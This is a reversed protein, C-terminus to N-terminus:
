PAPNPNDAHIAEIGDVVARDLAIGAAALNDKLQSLTTAGVIVSTVFPQGLLYALAMQAPDLGHDRALCVYAKTAAVARPNSYRTYDAFETLRAGPPRAGDLYKGSLTGFALPSYALLGCDERMAVEALGVEFVRNLLSYPNQVSAMRPAMGPLGHRDAAALFAMTGWPTENSLGVARVRGDKIEDALADLVEAPPTGGGDKDDHEYGLRGFYNTKREPWHLQYLDIYDTRLRRLSGEVAARVQDRRFARKAGAIHPVGPGAIKTAVVVDARNRRAALWAGVIEETRGATAAKPPVPYLEAADLMNVGADRALDLQAFAEAETNQEGFTMTGLCIRSVSIDTRGLRAHQM